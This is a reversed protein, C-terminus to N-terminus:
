DMAQHIISNMGKGLINTLFPIYYHLKLKFKNLIIDSVLMNAVVCCAPPAGWKTIPDLKYTM